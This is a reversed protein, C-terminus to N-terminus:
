YREIRIGVDHIGKLYKERMAHYITFNYTGNMPLHIGKRFPYRIDKIKGLGKGLWKGSPNALVYEVTDQYTRGDPFRTQVFFYINSFPYDNTHRLNIYFNYISVTDTIEVHFEKPERPMWGSTNVAEYREYVRNPDCATITLVFLSIILSYYPQHTSVPILYLAQPKYNAAQLRYQLRFRGKGMLGGSIM